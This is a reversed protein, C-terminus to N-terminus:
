KTTARNLAVRGTGSHKPLDDAMHLWNVKEDTHCHMEPALPAPDSMIGIPLYTQDPLYDFRALLPSGCNPCTARWVGEGFERLEVVPETTVCDNPFAAFAPM